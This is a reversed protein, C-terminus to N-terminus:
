VLQGLCKVCLCHFAAMIAGPWLQAWPSLPPPLSQIYFQLTRGQGGWHLPIARRHKPVTASDPSLLVPRMERGGFNETFDGGIEINTALELHFFFMSHLDFWVCSPQIWGMSEPLSQKLPSYLLTVPSSSLLFCAVSERKERWGKWAKENAM